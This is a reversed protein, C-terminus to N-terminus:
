RIKGKIDTEPYKLEFIANKPCVVYTGEPSLNENINFETSAYVGGTKNTITVKIVDLVGRVKNLENYVDTIYMHEGIYFQERYKARLQQICAELLDYKDVGSAPSILFDIGFNLIYPDLIDVTDNIMRYHNLWTKLNNKITANSTVLKGYQDESVVYM